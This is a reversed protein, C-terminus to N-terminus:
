FLATLNTVMGDYIWPKFKSPIKSLICKLVETSWGAIFKTSLNKAIIKTDKVPFFTPFVYHWQATHTKFMHPTPPFINLNNM